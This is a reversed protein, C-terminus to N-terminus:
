KIELIGNTVNKNATITLIGDSYSYESEVRVNVNATAYKSVNHEGNETIEVAGSPVIYEEPIAEVVVKSLGDAGDAMVEQVSENPTVIKEQLVPRIKVVGLELEGALELERALELKGLSFSM